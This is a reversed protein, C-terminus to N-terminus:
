QTEKADLYEDAKQVGERMGQWDKVAQIADEKAWYLISSAKVEELSTPEGGEGWAGCGSCSGYYGKYIIIGDLYVGVACVEGQYDGASDVKTWLIEPSAERLYDAFDM